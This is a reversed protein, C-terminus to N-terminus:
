KKEKDVKMDKVRKKLPKKHNPLKKDEPTHAAFEKAIEPHKAFLYREQAKSEFPM